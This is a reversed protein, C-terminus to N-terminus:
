GRTLRGIDGMALAWLRVPHITPLGRGLTLRRRQPGSGESYAEAPRQPDGHGGRQSFRWQEVRSVRRGM